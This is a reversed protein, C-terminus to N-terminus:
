RLMMDFNTSPRYAIAQHYIVPQSLLFFRANLGNKKGLFRSACFLRACPRDPWLVACALSTLAVSNNHISFHRFRWKTTAFNAPCCSHDTVSRSWQTALLTPQSYFYAPKPRLLIFLGLLILLLLAAAQTLSQVIHQDALDPM